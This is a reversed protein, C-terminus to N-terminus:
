LGKELQKVRKRWYKKRFNDYKASEFSKGGTVVDVRFSGEESIHLIGKYTKHIHSPVEIIAGDREEGNFYISGKQTEVQTSHHLEIQTLIKEGSQTTVHVFPAQGNKMLERNTKSEKVPWGNAYTAGAPVVLDLDIDSRQHVTRVSTVTKQEGTVPNTATVGTQYEITHYGSKPGNGPDESGM